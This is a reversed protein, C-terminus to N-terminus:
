SEKGDVSKSMSIGSIKQTYGATPVYRRISRVEDSSFGPIRMNWNRELHLQLDRPELKNSSLASSANSLSNSNSSSSSSSSSTTTKRHKALRCAFATVSQVFEDAADFLTEEVNGDIMRDNEPGVVSQILQRLKRKGLVHGNSNGIGLIDLAPPRLEAPTTLAPAVISHGASLTPREPYETVVTSASTGSGAGSSKYTPFIHDLTAPIPPLPISPTKIPSIMSQSVSSPPNPRASPGVPTTATAAAPTTAQGNPTQRQNNPPTQRNQLQNLQRQQINSLTQISLNPSQSTQSMSTNPNTAPSTVRSNSAMSNNTMSTNNSLNPTNISAPSQSGNTNLSNNVARNQLMQKQAVQQPTSNVGNQPKNLMANKRIPTDTGSGPLPTTAVRPSAIKQQSLSPSAIGTAPSGQRSVLPNQNNIPMQRNITPQQQNSIAPSNQQQQAQQQAQQQQQQKNVQNQQQQLLQAQLVQISQQPYRQQLVQLQKQQLPTLNQLQLRQQQLQNQAQQGQAQALQAQQAQVGAQRQLMARQEPTMLQICFMKARKEAEQTQKLKEKVIKIQEEANNRFEPTVNQAVAKELGDLKMQLQKVEQLLIAQKQRALKYRQGVEVQRPNALNQGQQQQLFQQQNQIQNQQQNQAQNQQQLFMGNPMGSFQQMMVNASVNQGNLQTNSALPSIINGNGNNVNNNGNNGNGNNNNQQSSSQANNMQQLQQQLNQATANNRQANQQAIQSQLQQQPTLQQQQQSTLTNAQQHAVQPSLNQQQAQNQNQVQNQQQSQAQLQIHNQQQNQQQQQRTTQIVKYCSLVEKLYTVQNISNRHLDSGQPAQQAVKYCEKYKAAVSEAQQPNLSAAVRFANSNVNIGNNVNMNNIGNVNIGNPQRVNGPNSQANGNM